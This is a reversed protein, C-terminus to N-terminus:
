ELLFLEVGYLFGDLKATNTFGAFFLHRKKPTTKPQKKPAPTTDRSGFSAKGLGSIRCEMGIQALKKILDEAQQQDLGKKIVVEQEAAFLKEVMDPSANKNLSAFHQKVDDRNFGERVKGTFEIQHSM